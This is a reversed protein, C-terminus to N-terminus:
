NVTLQYDSANARDINQNDELIITNNDAYNLNKM